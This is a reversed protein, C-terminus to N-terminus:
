LRARVGAEAHCEQCKITIRQAAAQAAAIDPASAVAEAESRMAYLFPMWDAQIDANTDHSALWNAHERAQALNGDALAFNLEDLKEAHEHMHAVFAEDDWIEAVAVAEEPAAMPAEEVAAPPAAEEQGCGTLVLGLGIILVLRFNM